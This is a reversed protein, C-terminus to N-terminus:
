LANKVAQRDQDAYQQQDHQTEVPPHAPFRGRIDEIIKLVQGVTLDADYKAGGLIVAGAHDVLIIAVTNLARQIGIVTALDIVQQQTAIIRQLAIVFGHRHSFIQNGCADIRRIDHQIIGPEAGQIGDHTGTFYEVRVIKNNNSLAEVALARQKDRQM